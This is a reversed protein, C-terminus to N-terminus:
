LNQCNWSQGGDSTNAVINQTGVIVGSAPPWIAVSQMDSLGVFEGCQFNEQPVLEWSKGGNYTEYCRGRGVAWGMTDVTLAIDKLESSITDRVQESWTEGGDFTHLIVGNGESWGVAWGNMTDTFSVANIRYMSSFTYRHFWASSPVQSYVINSISILLAYIIIYRKLFM